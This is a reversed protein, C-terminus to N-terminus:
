KEIKKQKTKLTECKNKWTCEDNNAYSYALQNLTSTSSSPPSVSPANRNSEFGITLHITDFKLRFSFCIIENVTSSTMEFWLWTGARRVSQPRMVIALKTAIRREDSSSNVCNYLNKANQFNGRASGSDFVHTLRNLRLKRQRRHRCRRRCHFDKLKRETSNLTVQLCVIEVINRGMSNAQARVACVIKETLSFFRQKASLNFRTLM